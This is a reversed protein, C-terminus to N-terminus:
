GHTKGHKVTLYVSQSLLLTIAETYLTEGAGCRRPECWDDHLDWPLRLREGRQRPHEASIYVQRM